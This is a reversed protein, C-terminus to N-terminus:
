GYLACNKARPSAALSRRGKGKGVRVKGKGVPVKGKCITLRLGRVKTGRRGKHRTPRLGRVKTGRRGKHRTPRARVDDKLHRVFLVTLLEALRLMAAGLSPAALTCIDHRFHELSAVRLPRIGWIVHMSLSSANKQWLAPAMNHNHIFPQRVRPLANNALQSHHLMLISIAPRHRNEEQARAAGKELFGHCVQMVEYTLLMTQLQIARSLNRVKM